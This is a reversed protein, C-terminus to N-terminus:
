PEPESFPETEITIDSIGVGDAGADGKDGKPGSPILTAIKEVEAKRTEGAQVVPILEMGTLAEAAPLDSIMVGTADANIAVRNNKSVASRGGSKRGSPLKKNAM